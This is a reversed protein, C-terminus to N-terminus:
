IPTQCDDVGSVFGMSRPMSSTIPEGKFFGQSHKIKPLQNEATESHKLEEEIRNIQEQIHVRTVEKMINRIQDMQTQEIQEGKFPSLDSKYFSIDGDFLNRIIELANCLKFIIRKMRSDKSHARQRPEEIFTEMFKQRNWNHNDGITLRLISQLQKLNQKQDSFFLLFKSTLLKIGRSLYTYQTPHLAKKYQDFLTQTHALKDYHM